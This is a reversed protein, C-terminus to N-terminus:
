RAGGTATRRSSSRSSRVLPVDRRRAVLGVAVTSVLFAVFVWARVSSWDLADGYRLLAVGNLGGFVIYADAAPRIRHADREWTAHLAAVGLGILWAGIARGTLETLSWPWADGVRGPALFLAIGFGALVIGQAGALLLLGRPLDATRPGDRGPARLQAVVLVIMIVPVITYVALWTWTVARTPGSFEAGFHFKDEHVLTAVLTLTTFVFVAPVAIRADAWRRRRAASGELAVAAWYSAGLFAATMPPDITWAFYRATRTSFVFLQMGALFVLVTAVALLARMGPRLRRIEATSSNETELKM